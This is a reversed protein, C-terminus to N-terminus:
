PVEEIELAGLAHVEVVGVTEGRNLACYRHHALLLNRGMTGLGIMGFKFSNNAMVTYTFAPSPNGLFYGM